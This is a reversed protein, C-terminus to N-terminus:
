NAKRSQIRTSHDPNIKRRLLNRYWRKVERETQSLSPPRKWALSKEPKEPQSPAPNARREMSRLLRLEAETFTSM